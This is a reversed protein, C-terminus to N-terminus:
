VVYQKPMPHTHIYILALYHNVFKLTNNRPLLLQILHLPAYTSTM